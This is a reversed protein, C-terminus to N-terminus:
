CNTPMMHSAFKERLIIIGTAARHATLSELGRPSLPISTQVYDTGKRAHWYVATEEPRYAASRRHQEAQRLDFSTNNGNEFYNVRTM